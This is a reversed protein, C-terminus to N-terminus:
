ARGVAEVHPILFFGDPQDRWSRWAEAISQLESTSALGYEIAQAAFASETSRSFWGDAWWAREAATQYHWNSTTITVETFGAQRMWRALHRGADAEAGNRATVEHYLELWRTLRPEAPAWLFGGYDADRVAVAGGDTAVRRMERLAGVPDTLHQLVQHAYVVDFSDDQHPLDYLDATEFTVNTTGALRAATRGAALIDEVIDLGVVRGPSVLRALELTISGPGCGVDLLRMGTELYPLLFAASNEATRAVHHSVVSAHHGHTYTDM